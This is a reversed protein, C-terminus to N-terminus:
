GGWGDSTALIPAVSEVNRYRAVCGDDDGEM